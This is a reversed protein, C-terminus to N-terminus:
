EPDKNLCKGVFDHFEPSWKDDIPPIDRFVINFLVRNPHQNLWPPQGQALEIAFIGLSWIDIKSAYQKDPSDQILEPAMWALTGKTSKRYNQEETLMVSYGFDALKIEGNKKCLINDSKIDRHIINSNHM